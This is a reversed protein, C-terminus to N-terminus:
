FNAALKNIMTSLKTQSQVCSIPILKDLNDMLLGTDHMFARISSSILIEAAPFSIGPAHAMVTAFLRQSYDSGSFRKKRLMNKVNKVMTHSDEYIKLQRKSFTSYYGSLSSPSPSALAPAPTTLRPSSLTTLRPPSLVQPHPSALLLLSKSAILDKQLDDIAESRSQAQLYFELQTCSDTLLCLTTSKLDKYKQELKNLEKDTDVGDGAGNGQM